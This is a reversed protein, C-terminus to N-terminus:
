TVGTVWVPPEAANGVLCLVRTLLDSDCLCLAELPQGDLAVTAGAGTSGIVCVECPKHHVIVLHQHFFYVFAKHLSVCAVINLIVHYVLM